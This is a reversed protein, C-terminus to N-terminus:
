GLVPLLLAMVMFERLHLRMFKLSQTVHYQVAKESLNMSQAIEKVSRNEYRSLRFIEQTKEPLQRITNDIAVSLEQLLVKSESSYDNTSQQDRAFQSYRERVLRSKIYDIVKYRIATYLYSELKEIHATQRNAWLSIFLGQVIEEAMEKSRLKKYATFFIRESYRSYIEELASGDGAKLLKVLIDDTFIKYDM